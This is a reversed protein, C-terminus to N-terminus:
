TMKVADIKQEALHPEREVSEPDFSGGLVSTDLYVRQLKMGDVEAHSYCM